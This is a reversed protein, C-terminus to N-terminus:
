SHREPLDAVVSLAVPCVGGCREEINRTLAQRTGCYAKTHWSGAGKSYSGSRRQLDWTPLTNIVRWRENLTAIVTPPTTLTTM